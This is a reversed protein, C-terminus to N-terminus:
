NWGAEAQTMQRLLAVLATRVQAADASCAILNGLVLHRASRSEQPVTTQGKRTVKAIATM